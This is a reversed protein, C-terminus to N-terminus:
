RTLHLLPSSKRWSRTGNAGAEARFKATRPGAGTSDHCLIILIELVQVILIVMMLEPSTLPAGKWLPPPAGRQLFADM